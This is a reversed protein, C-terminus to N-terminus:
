EKDKAALLAEVGPSIVLDLATQHARFTLSQSECFENGFTCLRVEHLRQVLDESELCSNTNFWADFDQTFFASWSLTYAELLIM